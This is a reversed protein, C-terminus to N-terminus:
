CCSLLSQGILRHVISVHLHTSIVRRLQISYLIRAAARLFSLPKKRFASSQVILTQDPYAPSNHCGHRDNCPAASSICDTPACLHESTRSTDLLIECLCCDLVKVPKLDALDCRKPPLHWSCLGTDAGKPLVSSSCVDDPATALAVPAEALVAGPPFRCCQASEASCVGSKIHPIAWHQHQERVQLATLGPGTHPASPQDTSPSPTAAPFCQPALM